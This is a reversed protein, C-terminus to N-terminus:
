SEKTVSPTVANLAKALQEKQEDTIEKSLVPDAFTKQLLQLSSNVHDTLQQLFETSTLAQIQTVRPPTSPQPKPQTPVSISSPRTPTPPTKKQPASLSSPAPTAFQSYTFFPSPTLTSWKEQAYQLIRMGNPLASLDGYTQYLTTLINQLAAVNQAQTIQRNYAPIIRDTLQATHATTHILAIFFLSKKM